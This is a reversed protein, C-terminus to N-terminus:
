DYWSALPDLSRLFDRPELVDEPVGIEGTRAFLGGSGVQNRAYVYKGDPSWENFGFHDGEALTSWSNTTQDLLTLQKADATLAAIYRGDPSIRPSYLSNSGPILTLNGSSLDVWHALRGTWTRRSPSRSFSRNAM